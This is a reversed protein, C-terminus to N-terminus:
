HGFRLFGAEVEIGGVAGLEFLVDFINKLEILPLDGLEFFKELSLRATFIIRFVVQIFVRLSGPARHPSEM